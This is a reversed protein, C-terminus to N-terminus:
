RRMAYRATPNLISHRAYLEAMIVTCTTSASALLWLRPSLGGKPDMSIVDHLYSLGIQMLAIWVITAVGATKIRSAGLRSSMWMAMFLTMVSVIDLVPHALLGSAINGAYDSPFSMVPFCEGVQIMRGEPTSAVAASATASMCSATLVEPHDRAIKLIASDSM